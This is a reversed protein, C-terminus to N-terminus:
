KNLKQSLLSESKILAALTTKLGELQREATHVKEINKTLTKGTSTGNRMREKVKDRANKTKTLAETSTKIQEELQPIRARMDHLKGWADLREFAKQNENDIHELLDEADVIEELSKPAPEKAVLTFSFVNDDVQEIGSVGM